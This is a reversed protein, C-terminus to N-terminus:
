TVRLVLLAIDDSHRGPPRVRDLLADAIRELSGKEHALCRVLDAISADLDIGPAEVLGDTYLALVTGPRLDIEAIPYTVNPNIGLLLGPPVHLVHTGLEPDRLLPPPHGANVLYARRLALDLHVYLCSTFLASDLDGLLRNTRALVQHPPTGATAYAHVATRVQGMLAAADANHGQVDGIVAACSSDGLRILDYFDGGIDMGRTSPRYRVAVELGPVSPLTHPLLAQQLDQALRHKTDYLRARDLAQAVLGALSALVAREEISFRHPHAYSLVCCGVPRGSVILPLFAWAKKGTVPAPSAYRRDLEEPDAFFLPTGTSFTEGTPTSTTHLSQGDLHEVVAAPYGRHGAVRLEGADEATFLMLGHAGFAPMIQDAILDVLDTVGVVETLAAALHMVQYLQGPKMPTAAGAPGPAPAASEPRPGTGAPTIRVSIGSDDPYLSFDLWRDPPRCASFSAPRRSFVSARYRDEYVPDNLWPLERWLLTGQLQEVSRGLLGAAAATIFTVRGELDLACSGGPLREAFDAAPLDEAWTTRTTEAPLVRLRDPPTLPRGGTRSADELLDAARRSCGAIQEEDRETLRDPHDPPWLLLLAGWRHRTSTVPAAALAFQYPVALATRPYMRALDEQGSVWVLRQENVADAVPLPAALSVRRWPTIFDGPIGCMVMVELVPEDPDLAYIGAAYAGTRRVTEDLVDDLLGHGAGVRAEGAETM